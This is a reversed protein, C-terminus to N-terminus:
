ANNNKEANKEAIYKVADAVTIIKAADQDSIYCNLKAELEMMLEVKDLSDAGLDDVLRANPHIKTKDVKKLADAIIEIVKAELNDLESM